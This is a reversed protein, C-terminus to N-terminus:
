RLGWTGRLIGINWSDPHIRKSVPRGISTFRVQLGSNVEEIGTLRFMPGIVTLAHMKGIPDPAPASRYGQEIKSWRQEGCCANLRLRRQVAEAQERCGRINRCVTIEDEGASPVHSDIEGAPDLEPLPVAAM